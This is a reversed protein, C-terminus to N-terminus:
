SIKMYNKETNQKKLFEELTTRDKGEPLAAGEDTEADADADDDAAKGATQRHAHLQDAIIEILRAQKVHRMAVLHGGIPM